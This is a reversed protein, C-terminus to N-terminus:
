TISVLQSGRRGVWRMARGRDGRDRAGRAHPPRPRRLADAADGGVVRQRRRERRRRRRGSRASEHGAARQRPPLRARRRTRRARRTRGAGEGRRRRPRRRWLARRHRRGARRPTARARSRADRAAAATPATSWSWSALDLLWLDGHVGGVGWGGFVAVRERGLVCGAHGLLPPPPAGSTLPREWGLRSGPSDDALRLLWLENNPVEGAEGLVGGGFLLVGPAGAAGDATTGGPYSVALHHVRESPAAAGLAPVKGKVLAGERADGARRRTWAMADTDFLYVDPLASLQGIRGGLLVLRSGVATLSHGSVAPPFRGYVAPRSWVRSRLHLVPMTRMLETGAASAGGFLFLREGVLAAAHDRRALAPQGALERAVWRRADLDYFYTRDSAEGEDTGGGHVIFENRWVVAVHGTLPPPASQTSTPLQTWTPVLHSPQSRPRAFRASPMTACRRDGELLRSEQRSAALGSWGATSGARIAELEEEKEGLLELAAAHEDRMARHEAAVRRLPAAEAALLDRERSLEALQDLM